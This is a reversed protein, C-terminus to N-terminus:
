RPFPLNISDQSDTWFTPNFSACRMVKGGIVEPRQSSLQPHLIQIQFFGHVLLSQQSHVAKKFLNHLSIIMESKTQPFQFINSSTVSERASSQTTMLATSRDAKQCPTTFNSYYIEYSYISLMKQLRNMSGYTIVIQLQQADNAPDKRLGKRCPLYGELLLRRSRVYKRSALQPAATAENM